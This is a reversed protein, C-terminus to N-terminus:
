LHSALNAAKVALGTLALAILACTVRRIVNDSFLYFLRMGLPIAIVTGILLSIVLQYDVLGRSGLTLSVTLSLILGIPISTAAATKMTLGGTTALTPVVLVGGGVGTMGM